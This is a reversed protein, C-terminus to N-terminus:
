SVFSYWTRSMLGSLYILGVTKTRRDLALHLTFDCSYSLSKIPLIYRIGDVRVRSARNREVEAKVFTALNLCSGGREGGKWM